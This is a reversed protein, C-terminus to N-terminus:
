IKPVIFSKEQSIEPPLKRSKGIKDWYGTLALIFADFLIYNKVLKEYDANYIFIHNEKELKELFRERYRKGDIIDKYDKLYFEPLDLIKLFSWLSAKSYSELFTYKNLRKKIYQIRATIASMSGGLAEHPAEIDAFETRLWVEVARQTYPTFKRLNKKQKKLQDYTKLIYKVEINNCVSIGDCNENKCNFCAPYTLPASTIITLDSGDDLNKIKEILEEDSDKDRTHINKHKVGELSEVLFLRSEGEYFDVVAMSTYPNKSGCLLLGIFRSKKTNM